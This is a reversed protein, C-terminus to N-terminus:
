ETNSVKLSFEVVRISSITLGRFSASIGNEDVCPTLRWSDQIVDQREASLVMVVFGVDGMGFLNKSFLFYCRQAVRAHTGWPNSAYSSWPVVPHRHTRTIGEEISV